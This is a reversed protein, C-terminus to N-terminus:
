EGDRDPDEFAEFSNKINENVLSENTGGKNATEPDVLEGTPLRFWSSIDARITVNTAVDAGVVLPPILDLKQEVNLDTEYLFAVGNFTGQVRM